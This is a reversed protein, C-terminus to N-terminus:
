TLSLAKGMNKDVNIQHARKDEGKTFTNADNDDSKIPFLNMMNKARCLRINNFKRRHHKNKANVKDDMAKIISAMNDGLIFTPGNQKFGLEELINRMWEVDKLAESLASTEAAETSDAIFMSQRKSVHHILNGAPWQKSIVAKNITDSSHLSICWGSISISDSDGGWNADTKCLIQPIQNFQDNDGKLIKIGLRKTGKLYKLIGIAAEYHEVSPNSVFRALHMTIFSIDPRWSTAMWIYSGILERYNDHMQKEALGKTNPEYYVNPLAPTSRCKLKGDSDYKELLTSVMEDNYIIGNGITDTGIKMGLIKQWKDVKTVEYKKSLQRYLWEGENPDQSVGPIDDVYLCLISRYGNQENIKTFLCPDSEVPLYGCEILSAKINLYFLRAAQKTGYLAKLLKYYRKKLPDYHPFGEPVVVYIPFDIDANLFAQTIDFQFEHWNMNIRIYLIMKVTEKSATPSFTRDFHILVLQLFGRGTLRAKYKIFTTDSKTKIDFRWTTDIPKEGSPLDVVENSFVKMQLMGLIEKKMADNYKGEFIPNMADKYDRPIIQAKNNVMKSQRIIMAYCQISLLDNFNEEKYELTDLIEAKTMTRTYAESEDRKRKSVNMMIMAGDPARYKEPEYNVQNTTENDEDILHQLVINIATQVTAQPNTENAKRKVEPFANAAQVIVPHKTAAPGPVLQGAIRSTHNQIDKMNYGYTKAAGTIDNSRTIEGTAMHLVICSNHHSEDYGMFICERGHPDLKNLQSFDSHRAYILQGFIYITKGFRQGHVIEYPTLKKYRPDRNRKSKLMNHLFVAYRMAFTWYRAPLGAASLMVKTAEVITRTYREILGNAWHQGPAAYSTSILKQNLLQQFEKSEFISDSDFHLKEMHWGLDRAKLRWAEFIAMKDNKTRDNVFEVMGYHGHRTIYIIAYKHGGYPTENKKLMVPGYIDVHGEYFPNHFEANMKSENTIRRHAKAKNISCDICTFKKHHITDIRKLIKDKNPNQLFEEDHTLSGERIAKILDQFNKHMYKVHMDLIFKEAM